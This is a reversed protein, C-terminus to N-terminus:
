GKFGQYAFSSSRRQGPGRVGLPNKSFSLRIGGKGPVGGPRPLTRGYLEALARTAYAVDEFEVFCMPGHSHSSGASNLQGNGNLPQTKTRFSLRRFGRQPSFLQRLEAETADPPLNGVYLTNCPPNQDAPNAPPPVRALLSLDVQSSQQSNTLTPPQSISSATSPQSPNQSQSQPIQSASQTQQLQPNQLVGVPASSPPIPISSQGLNPQAQQNPNQQSLSLQTPIQSSSLQGTLLPSQNNFFVSSQRRRDWEINPTQPNSNTSFQASQPPISAPPIPLQTPGGQSHHHQPQQQPQQWPDRVLQEYERADQQSELLLLSKGLGNSNGNNNQQTSNNEQVSEPISENQFPDSFLFRSRQNGISPRKASSGINLNVQQSDHNVLESKLYFPYTPGFIQNSDLIQSYTSAASLSTFKAYIVPLNNSDIILDSGIFDKAFAFILYSERLSIDTPLNKIKLTYIQQQQQQQQQQHQQQQHNSNQLQEQEQTSLNNTPGLSLNNLNSSLHVPSTQFSSRRGSEALSTPNAFGLTSSNPSTRNTTSTLSPPQQTGLPPQINSQTAM